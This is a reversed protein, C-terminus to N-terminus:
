NGLSLKYYDPSIYDTYFGHVGMKQYMEIEPISNVTHVYVYIGSNTLKKIFDDSVRSTHMTVVKLKNQNMFNIIQDDTSTTLYLTYIYSDFKYMSDIQYYM